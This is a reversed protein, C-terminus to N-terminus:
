SPETSHCRGSIRPNKHGDTCVGEWRFRRGTGYPGGEQSVRAYQRRRHLKGALSDSGLTFISSDLTKLVRGLFEWTRYVFLRFCPHAERGFSESAHTTAVKRPFPCKFPRTNGLTKCVEGLREAFGRQTYDFIATLLM